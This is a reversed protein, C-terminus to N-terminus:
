LNLSHTKPSGAVVVQSPGRAAFCTGQPPCAADIMPNMGSAAAVISGDGDDIDDNIDRDNDDEDDEKGDNAEDNQKRINKKHKM